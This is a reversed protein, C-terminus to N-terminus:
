WAASRLWANVPQARLKVSSMAGCQEANQSKASLPSFQQLSTITPPRCRAASPLLLTASAVMPPTLLIHLGDFVNKSRL